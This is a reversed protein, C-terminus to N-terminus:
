ATGRKGCESITRLLGEMDSDDVVYKMITGGPEAPSRVFRIERRVCNNGTKDVFQTVLKPEAPFEYLKVHHRRDQLGQDLTEEPQSWDGPIEFRYDIAADSRPAGHWMQHELDVWSRKALLSKLSSRANPGLGEEMETRNGHMWALIMADLQYRPEVQFGISHHAVRSASVYSTLGIALALSNDLDGSLFRLRPNDAMTRLREYAKPGRIKAYAFLLWRANWTLLTEQGQREILDLASNLDPVAASGLAVLSNALARNRESIRVRNTDYLEPHERLDIPETLDHILKAASLNRRVNEETQASILGSVLILTIICPTYNALHGGRM